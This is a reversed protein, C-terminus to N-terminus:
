RGVSQMSSGSSHSPLCKTRPRTTNLLCPQHPSLSIAICHTFTTILNCHLTHTTTLLLNLNVHRIHCSLYDLLPTSSSFSSLVITKYYKITKDLGNKNTRNYPCCRPVTLVIIGNEEYGISTTMKTLSTSVRGVNVVGGPDKHVDLRTLMPKGM